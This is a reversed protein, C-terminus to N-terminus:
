RLVTDVFEVLLDFSAPFDAPLLDFGHPKGDVVVLRNDVGAADLAAHFERIQEVPTAADTSGTYTWMPPADGDVYSVPSAALREEATATVGAQGALLFDVPERLPVMAELDTAPQWLFAGVVNSPTDDWGGAGEWRGPTLAVMASLHGGASGGAVAIREPDVGLEHAAARVWRVACKADELCAPWPAEVSLRYDITVAVVGLEALGHCHRYHFGRDGAGWGGGHVFVVAPAHEDADARAYGSLKLDRGGRGATGYTVDDLWRAGDPDPPPCHLELLERATSELIGSPHDPDREVAEALAELWPSGATRWATM